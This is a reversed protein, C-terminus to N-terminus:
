ASSPMRSLPIHSSNLRTSKRDLAEEIEHLEGEIFLYGKLEGPHLLAKIGSSGSKLRVGLANIVANERGSTTRLIYIM